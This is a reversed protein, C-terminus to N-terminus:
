APLNLTFSYRECHMLIVKLKEQVKRVFKPLCVSHMIPFTSTVYRTCVSITNTQAETRPIFSIAYWETSPYHVSDISFLTLPYDM